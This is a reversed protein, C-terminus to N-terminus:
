RDEGEPRKALLASTAVVETLTGNTALPQLLAEIEAALRPAADGLRDPATSSRSFARDVLQEVTISRREIVSVQDLVSFASDLLFAEHRVWTGGRRRAHAEDDDSYRRVLSRYESGWPNEPLDLHESDFLVVAGDPEIMTDLRRLTAARDMWHFSRGMTAMRFRGLDAPLDFSSGRMFRINGADGFEAQAIRLMEPEPDIAIVERVLPAFAGALMGPGCGLDLVRVEGTLGTLRAVLQILRPAYPPRGALYHRAATRFRHPQFVMADAM